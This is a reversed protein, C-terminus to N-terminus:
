GNSYTSHWKLGGAICSVSPVLTQNRPWSSGRSFPVAVWELIRTQLIGHVTSGPPSCDRPDCVTPCLQTVSRPLVEEAASVVNGFTPLPTADPWRELHAATCLGPKPCAGRPAERVEEEPCLRGETLHGTRPTSEQMCPKRNGCKSTVVKKRRLPVEERGAM